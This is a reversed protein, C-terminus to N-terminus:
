PEVIRTWSGRAGPLISSTYTLTYQGAESAEWCVTGLQVAGPDLQGTGLAYSSTSGPLPEKVKGSPLQLKWDTTSFKVKKDSTNTYTIDTCLNQDVRVFESSVIRVGNIEITSVVLSDRDSTQPQGPAATSGSGSVALTPAPVFQPGQGARRLGPDGSVAAVIVLEACIGVTLLTTAIVTMQRVQSPDRPETSVPFRVAAIGVATGLLLLLSAIVLLVGEDGVYRINVVVLLVTLLAGTLCSVILAWNRERRGPTKPMTQTDSGDPM